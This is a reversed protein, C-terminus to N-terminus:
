DGVLYSRIETVTWLGASRLDAISTRFFWWLWRPVRAIDAPHADLREAVERVSDGNALLVVIRVFAPDLGRAHRRKLRRPIPPLIPRTAISRRLQRRTRRSVTRRVPFSAATKM